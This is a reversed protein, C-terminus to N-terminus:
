SWVAWTFSPSRLETGALESAWWVGHCLDKCLHPESGCSVLCTHPRPSQAGELAMVSLGAHSLLCLLQELGRVLQHCLKRCAMLKSKLFVGVCGDMRCLYFLM